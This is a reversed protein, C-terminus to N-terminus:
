DGVLFHFIPIGIEFKGGGDVAATSTKKMDFFIWPALEGHLAAAEPRVEWRQRPPRFFFVGEFVLIVISFEFWKFFYRSNLHETKAPTSPRFEERKPLFFAFVDPVFGVFVCCNTNAHFNNM